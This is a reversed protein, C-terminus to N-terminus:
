SPSSSALGSKAVERALSLFRRLAPNDNEPRWTLSFPISESHGANTFPIFNVDPYRAGCWHDAVVSVGLGLGVLNMIGERDLRHQDVKPHRGLNGIRSVIYERIEPGPEETSTLFVQDEVEDWTVQSRKALCHYRSLALLIPEETLLLMDGHESTPVGSAFVADVRRHSLMTLLEGRDCEAFTLRVKPHRAIFDVVVNRLAGHSLSAIIGLRLQGNTGSGACQASRIACQLDRLLYRGRSAFNWGATTLRAGTSSREFLSVGLAEEMKQIRRTVVSQGIDLRLAAKRFSGTEGVALFM